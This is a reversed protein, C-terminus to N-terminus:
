FGTKCVGFKIKTGQLIKLSIRYEKNAELRKNCLVTNFSSGRATNLAKLNNNELQILSNRKGNDFSFDELNGQIGNLIKAEVIEISGNNDYCAVAPYINGQKFEEVNSYAPGYDTSQIQFSLSGEITNCRVVIM